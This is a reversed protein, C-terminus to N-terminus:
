SFSRREPFDKLQSTTSEGSSRTKVFVTSLNFCPNEALNLVQTLNIAGEAWQNEVYYDLGYADFPVYTTVTNNTIYIEGAFNSNPYIVYEYVGNVLEWRQIVVGAATGGNTFEITVLLDGETRGGETGQSVFGGYGYGKSDYGEVTMSLPKQLFEFDIYSSGSTVWRDGAFLCWLDNPNAGQNSDGYTFHVAVNQIENKQPADGRKWDFTNPDDNITNSTAFVTEDVAGQKWGDQQFYTMTPDIITGDINFISGGSGPYQSTDIFWDGVGSTPTNAYADGDIAFGGNPNQVPAVGQINQALGNISFM